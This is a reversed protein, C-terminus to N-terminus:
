VKHCQSDMHKPIINLSYQPLEPARLGRLHSAEVGKHVRLQVYIKFLDISLSKQEM